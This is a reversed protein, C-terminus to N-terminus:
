NKTTLGVAVYCFYDFSFDMIWLFDSNNYIINDSKDLIFLNNIEKVEMCLM